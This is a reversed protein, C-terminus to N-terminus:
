YFTDRSSKLFLTEPRSPSPIEGCMEWVQLFKPQKLSSAWHHHVIQNAPHTLLHPDIVWLLFSLARVVNFESQYGLPQIQYDQVTEMPMLVQKPNLASNAGPGNRSLYHLLHFKGPTVGFPPILSILNADLQFPKQAVGFAILSVLISWCLVKVMTSPCPNTTPESPHSKASSTEQGALFKFLYLTKIFIRPPVFKTPSTSTSASFLLLIITACM